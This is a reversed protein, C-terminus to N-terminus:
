SPEDPTTKPTSGPTDSIAMGRKRLLSVFVQNEKYMRMRVPGLHANGLRTVTSSCWMALSDALKFVPCGTVGHDLRAVIFNIEDSAKFFAAACDRKLALDPEQLDSSENGFEDRV